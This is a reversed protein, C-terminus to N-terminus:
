VLEALIGDAFLWQSYPIRLRGNVEDLKGARQLKTVDPTRKEWEGGFEAALETLSVGENLRLGLMLRESLQTKADIAEVQHYPKLAGALDTTPTPWTDARLYRDIQATNRYRVVPQGPAEAPLTGYAGLGIGLYPEGRWYGLNHRSTRGERAFNSIEYHTFGSASLTDHVAEFSQAVLADDLLPLQGKRHLAGFATGPEITLLYASVHSVGTDLVQQVDRVALDPTQRYVGHILDASFNSFGAQKAARLADLAGGTRHLRGLFALREDSLAQVGLSLRNVGAALLAEGKQADFSTPNAELTIEAGPLVDYHRALSALVRAVLRPDWLSPTGGGFFVSHIPRANLLPARQALEREIAATYAEQPIKSPEPEALSLFDCYPCKALCWPFHIYVGASSQTKEDHAPPAPQATM